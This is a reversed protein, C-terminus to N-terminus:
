CLFFFFRFFWILTWARTVNALKIGAYRDVNCRQLLFCTCAYNYWMSYLWNCEVGGLREGIRRDVYGNTYIRRIIAESIISVENNRYSPPISVFATEMLHFRPEPAYHFIKADRKCVNARENWGERGRTTRLMLCIYTYVMYRHKLSPTEFRWACCHRFGQAKLLRVISLVAHRPTSQFFAAKRSRSLNFGPQRKSQRGRGIYKNRDINAGSSGNDGREGRGGREGKLTVVPQKTPPGCSQLRLSCNAVIIRPCCVRNVWTM